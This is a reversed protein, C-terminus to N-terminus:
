GAKELIITQKRKPGVSVITIPVKLIESIKQLYKKAAIPFDEYNNIASIDESWGPMLIYEPKCNKYESLITPFNEVKKGNIYYGTCIKIEKLGSLVDLLM